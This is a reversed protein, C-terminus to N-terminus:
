KSAEGKLSQIQRWLDQASAEEHQLRTLLEQGTNDWQLSLKLAVAARGCRAQLESYLHFLEERTQRDLPESM